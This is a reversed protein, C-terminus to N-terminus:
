SGAKNKNFMQPTFPNKAGGAEAARTEGVVVTDGEKLDGGVIETMVGDSLGIKAKVPRVFGGDEVWLTHRDRSEKEAGAKGGDAKEGGPPASAGGPRKGQGPTRAFQERAEPVIQPPKPRWRLAANSVLLVGNRKSVEFQVNATLYPVLKGDSNDANVVVTYTVVNQTMSANLRPQDPAVVGKFMRGPHADVSFTVTQGSRINGIDAENVSAWVQLRKLDKAILFLSPANLSSVVTQGVNVRRDVIVGKVPSRITCYGLNIQANVLAAKADSLAAKSKGVNAQSDKLAARTQAVTAQGVALTAKNTRFTAEATDYDVAALAGSPKLNKARQWDRDSQYLKAEMQGLDAVARQVNAEASAVQANASDLQAEAQDLQAKARDVQAQYLSEDIRALITDKEVPSGYDIMRGGGRPDKGFGLIQGAVQAGVDIVEEPEITGTAGIAAVLNGREVTVTRFSSGRHDSNYVYWGGFGGVVAILILVIIFRKM